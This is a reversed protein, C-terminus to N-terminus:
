RYIKGDVEISVKEEAGLVFGLSSVCTKQDSSGASNGTLYRGNGIAKWEGNNYTYTIETGDDRRLIFSDVKLDKVNYDIKLDLRGVTLKLSELEIIQPQADITKISNPNYKELIKVVESNISDYNRDTASVPLQGIEDRVKDADEKNLILFHIDDGKSPDNEDWNVRSFIFYFYNRSLNMFMNYSEYFLFNLEEDDLTFSEVIGQIRRRLSMNGVIFEDSLHETEVPNGDRDWLSFFLYGRSVAKDYGSGEYVLKYNGILYEAGVSPFQVYKWIEDSIESNIPISEDNAGNDASFNGGHVANNNNTFIEEIGQKSNSFFAENLKSSNMAWVAGGSLALICAGVLAAVAFKPIRGKRRSSKSNSVDDSCVSFINNKEEESAVMSNMINQYSQKLIEDKLESM